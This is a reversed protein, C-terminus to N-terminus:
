ESMHQMFFAMLPDNEDCLKEIIDLHDRNKALHLFCPEGVQLLKQQYEKAQRFFEPTDYEPLVLHLPCDAGTLSVSHPVLQPSVAAASEASMGIEDNIFSNVLPRIDYLGALSFVGRLKQQAKQPVDLVDWDTKRLLAALHGGASHGVLYVAASGRCLAEKLVAAVAYEMQKVISEMPVDNQWNQAMRYGPMYVAYGQQNFPQAIFSFQEKSFWQWWGGHLYIVIPANDELNSSRFVDMEGLLDDEGYSLKELGLAINQRYCESKESTLAIHHPLLEDVLLRQTWLTPNYQVDNVERPLNSYFDNM